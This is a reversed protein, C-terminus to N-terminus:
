MPCRIVKANDNAPLGGFGGMGLAGVVESGRPGAQSILTHDDVVIVRIRDQDVVKTM